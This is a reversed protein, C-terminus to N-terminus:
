LSHLQNQQVTLVTPWGSDSGIKASHPTSTTQTPANLIVSLISAAASHPIQYKGQRIAWATSVSGPEWGEGPRIVIRLCTRHLSVVAWSFLYLPIEM